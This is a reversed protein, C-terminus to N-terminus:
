PCSPSKTNAAPFRQALLEPPKLYRRAVAAVIRRRTASRQLGHLHAAARRREAQLHSNVQSLASWHDRLLKLGRLDTTCADVCGSAEDHVQVLRRIAALQVRSLSSTDLGSLASPAPAVPGTSVAIDPAPVTAEAEDFNPVRLPSPVTYAADRPSPEVGKIHLRLGSDSIAAVCPAAEEEESSSDDDFGTIIVSPYPSGPRRRKSPPDDFCQGRQRCVPLPLPTTTNLDM